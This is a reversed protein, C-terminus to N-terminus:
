KYDKGLRLIRCIMRARYPLRIENNNLGIKYGLDILFWNRVRILLRWNGRDTVIWLYSFWKTKHERRIIDVNGKIQCYSTITVGLVRVNFNTSKTFFFYSLRRRFIDFLNRDKLRLCFRKGDIDQRNYPHWLWAWKPYEHSATCKIGDCTRYYMFKKMSFLVIFGSLLAGVTLFLFYFPVKLLWIVVKLM